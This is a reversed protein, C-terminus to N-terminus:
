LASAARFRNFGGPGRGPDSSEEAAAAPHPGPRNGARRIPSDVTRCAKNHGPRGPRAPRAPGSASAPVTARDLRSLGGLESGRAGPPEKLIRDAYSQVSGDIKLAECHLERTQCRTQTLKGSGPGPGAWYKKRTTDGCKFAEAAAAGLALLRLPKVTSPVGYPQRKFEAARQQEVGEVPRRASIM